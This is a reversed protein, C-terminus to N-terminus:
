TIESTPAMIQSLPKPYALGPFLMTLFSNLQQRVMQRIHLCQKPGNPSTIWLLLLTAMGGVLRPNCTMYDIGWKSFPGITIVPHLHAPPARMKCQYIQFEHCKRVFFIYDKFISPWFYGARLIKQTTAYGSMHGGCAGFHFDNLVIEVEEITLCQRLVSDVGVRYLTDGIIHYPQSYHRIRRRDYKTLASRFTSTQFYVIIDSYWPDLTSISFLTKDPLQEDAGAPLAKSPLPCVLEAFVLSKKYKM